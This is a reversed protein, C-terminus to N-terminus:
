WKWPDSSQFVLNMTNENGVIADEETGNMSRVQV